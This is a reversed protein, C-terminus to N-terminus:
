DQRSFHRYVSSYGLFYACQSGVLHPPLVEPPFFVFYFLGASRFHPPKETKFNYGKQAATLWRHSMGAKYRLSSAIEEWYHKATDLDTSTSSQGSFIM